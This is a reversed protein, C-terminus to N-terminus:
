VERGLHNEVLFVGLAAGGAEAELVMAAVSQAGAPRTATQPTAQSATAAPEERRTQPPPTPPPSSVTLPSPIRIQSWTAVMDKMYDVTLQGVAGYYRMYADMSRRLLDEFPGLNSM